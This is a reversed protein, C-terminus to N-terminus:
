RVDCLRIDATKLVRTERRAKRIASPIWPEPPCCRRDGEALVRVPSDLLVDLVGVGSRADATTRRRDGGYLPCPEAIARNIVWFQLVIVQGEHKVPLEHGNEPALAHAGNKELAPEGASHDLHQSLANHFLAAAWVVKLISAVKNIVYAAEMVSCPLVLAANVLM